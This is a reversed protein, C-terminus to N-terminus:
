NETIHSVIFVLVYKNLISSGCILMKLFYSNYCYYFFHPGNTLHKQSTFYTNSTLLSEQNLKM